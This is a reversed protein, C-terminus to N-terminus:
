LMFAQLGEFKGKLFPFEVIAELQNKSVRYQIGTIRYSIYM